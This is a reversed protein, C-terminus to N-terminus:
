RALGSRKALSIARDLRLALAPDLQAGYVFGQSEPHRGQLALQLRARQWPPANNRVYNLQQEDALVADARDTLLLPIAQNLATLPVLRVKGRLPPELLRQESVSGPRAAVRLGALDAFSRPPSGSAPQQQIVDLTITSVIMSAGIIRVLWSLIVLGHGSTRKVIVNTGPGTALVQFVLAYSRRAERWGGPTGRLEARHERYWVLWSLLAIALLYIALVRLLQPNLLARGLAQGAELRSRRLLLALGSEQFPLSFRYRGLREASLTLCGVGVAISGRRSAELLLAANAYPEMVYPLRERAAVEQWLDVALGQWRGPATQQSCPPSGDLVGVRLLSSPQQEPIPQQRPIAQQEAILQKEAGM